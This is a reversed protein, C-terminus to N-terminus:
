LLGQRTAVHALEVQNHVGLKAMIRHLHFKITSESIFCARGIQSNPLGQGVLRLIELERTTLDRPDRRGSGSVVSEMVLDTTRAGFGPRGQHVGRITRALESSDVEKLRCASRTV